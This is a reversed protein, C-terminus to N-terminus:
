DKVDVLYKLQEYLASLVTLKGAPTAGETQLGRGAARVANCVSIM